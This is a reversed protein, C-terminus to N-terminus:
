EEDTDVIKGGDKMFKMQAAADLDTFAARSMTKAAEADPKKDGAPVFLKAARDGTSAADRVSVYLHNAKDAKEKALDLDPRLDLAKQKGEETGENFATEMQNLITQMEESAANAADYFPKLDM